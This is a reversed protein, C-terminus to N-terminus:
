GHVCHKKAYAIIWEPVRQARAMQEIQVDNYGMARATNVVPCCNNITWSLLIIAIM